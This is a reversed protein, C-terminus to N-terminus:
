VVSTTLLCFTVNITTIIITDLPFHGNPFDNQKQTPIDLNSNLIRSVNWSWQSRHLVPTLRFLCWLVFGVLNSMQRLWLSNQVNSEAIYYVKLAQYVHATSYMVELIKRFSIHNPLWTISLNSNSRINMTENVYLLQIKTNIWSYSVTSVKMFLFRAHPSIWLLQVSEINGM